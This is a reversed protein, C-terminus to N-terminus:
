SRRTRQHPRHGFRSAVAADSLQQHCRVAGHVDPALRAATPGTEPPLAETSEVRSRLSTATSINPAAAPCYRWWTLVPGSAFQGM